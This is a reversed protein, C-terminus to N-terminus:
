LGGQQAHQRSYAKHYHKLATEGYSALWTADIYHFTISQRLKQDPALESSSFGGCHIVSINFLSHMQLGTWADENALFEDQTVRQPDSCSPAQAMAAMARNNLGYGAGGQAYCLGGKQTNGYKTKWAAHSGCLLLDMGSEVVTGFYIPHTSESPKKGDAVGGKHVSELSSLFHLLRGPFVITDTDIKLYYRKEPFAQYIEKMATSVKCSLKQYTEDEPRVHAVHFNVMKKVKDPLGKIMQRVFSDCQREKILSAGEGQETSINANHVVDISSDPMKAGDQECADLVLVIDMKETILPLWWKFADVKSAPGLLVYILVENLNVHIQEFSAAAQEASVGSRAAYDEQCAVNAIGDAPCQFYHVGAQVAEYLPRNFDACARDKPHSSGSVYLVLTLVLWTLEMM